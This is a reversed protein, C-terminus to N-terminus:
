GVMEIRDFSKPSLNFNTGDWTAESSALRFTDGQNWKTEIIDEILDSLIVTEGIAIDSPILYAAFPSEFHHPYYFTFPIVTNNLSEEKAVLSADDTEGFPNSFGTPEIELIYNDDRLDHIVNIKGTVKDQVVAYKSKIKPSPVVPKVLPWYGKAVADNIAKESRATKIVRLKKDNM